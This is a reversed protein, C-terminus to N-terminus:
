TILLSGEEDADNVSKFSIEERAKQWDLGFKMQHDSADMRQPILLKHIHIDDVIAQFSM